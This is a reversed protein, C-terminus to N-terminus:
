ENAQMINTFEIWGKCSEDSRDRQLRLDIFDQTVNSSDVLM